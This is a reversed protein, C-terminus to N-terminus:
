GGSTLHGGATVGRQLVVFHGISYGLAAGLFVDSPFHARSILRSAGITGASGYAGWRGLRYGLWSGPYREAFVTAVAFAAATHGSPFCGAGDINRNKTRFWTRAFNGDPGVEIPRMRRDLHKMTIAIIEANAAAEGALLGTRWVYPKGCALGVFYCLSWAANIVRAMNRGSLVRNIGRVAPRDQFAAQQLWPTSYPDLAILAATVGITRLAPKWANGRAATLPFSWIRKQDAALRLLLRGSPHARLPKRARARCTMARYTLTASAALLGVARAFKM